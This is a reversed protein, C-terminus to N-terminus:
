LSPLPYGWFLWALRKQWSTEEYGPAKGPGLYFARYSESSRAARRPPRAVDRHLHKVMLYRKKRCIARDPQQPRGSSMPARPM